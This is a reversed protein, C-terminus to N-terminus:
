VVLCFCLTPKYAVIECELLSTSIQLSLHAYARAKSLSSRPARKGFSSCSTSSALEAFLERELLRARRRRARQANAAALQLRRSPTWLRSTLTRTRAKDAAFRQRRQRFGRAERTRREGRARGRGGGGRLMSTCAFCRLVFCLVHRPRYARM